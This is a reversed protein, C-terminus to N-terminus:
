TAVLLARIEAAVCKLQEDTLEAYMPLSVYESAGKEAVPFSGQGKGLFAYADQLHLPVPYHIGCHVDKEALKAIVADRDKVCIAYIHYVAKGYEAEDPLVVGPIGALLENYRKANRRRADNWQKIYKLKVSLIAGQIGDMRMNWGIMAHYYKKAQGHDRLMRAKAAVEDNNTALGGAEGYAGLNKGPYFSFAGADGISGAIRGKYEAGHAQCADEVVFLNHKGAIAMIPDMDCMQGFLHVPLIAKTKPTIAPEIKSPDMLWTKPDVDVFVPKAGRHSIAETTAIFTNPVTIVEDGEGIGLGALALWLADTGNGVGLAHKTGCFAAFAEEFKSVFPGGAFATKDIVQQIAVSIEDKINDYQAKLDLFPVKM